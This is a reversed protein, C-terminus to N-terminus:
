VSAAIYLGILLLPFLLDFYLVPGANFVARNSKKRLDALHLAGAGWTFISRAIIAALWFHGHLWISLIGLAGNGLNAFAVEKQFPNGAPWGIGRAVEDSRFFHGFFAFIGQLGVNTLLFSLLFARIANVDFVVIQVIGICIGLVLFYVPYM